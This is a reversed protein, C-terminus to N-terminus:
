RATHQWRTATDLRVAGRPQLPPQRGAAPGAGLPGRPARGARRGGPSRAGHPQLLAPLLSPHRAAGGPAQPPPFVCLM